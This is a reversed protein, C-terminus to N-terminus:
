QSVSTSIPYISEDMRAGISSLREQRSVYVLYPPHVPRRNRSQAQIDTQFESAQGIWSRPGNLSRKAQSRGKKEEASM